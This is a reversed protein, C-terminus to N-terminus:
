RCVRTSIAESFLEVVMKGTGISMRCGNRDAFPSRGAYVPHPEAVEVVRERFLRDGLLRRGVPERFLKVQCAVM